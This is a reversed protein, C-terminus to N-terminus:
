RLGFKPALALIVVVGGIIQYKHTKILDLMNRRDRKSYAFTFALVFAVLAHMLLWMTFWYVHNLSLQPM